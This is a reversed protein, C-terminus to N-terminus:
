STKGNADQRQGDKRHGFHPIRRRRQHRRTQHPHTYDREDGDELRLHHVRLASLLRWTLERTPVGHAEIGRSVAEAV